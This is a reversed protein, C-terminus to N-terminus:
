GKTTRYRIRFAEADEEFLVATKSWPRRSDHDTEYSMWVNLPFVGGDALDKFSFQPFHMDDREDIYERIAPIQLIDRRETDDLDKWAETIGNEAMLRQMDEAVMQFYQQLELMSSGQLMDFLAASVGNQDTETASNLGAPAQLPSAFVLRAVNTPVMSKGDIRELDQPFTVDKDFEVDDEHGILALGTDVLLARFAEEPTKDDLFLVPRMGDLNKLEGQKVYITDFKAMYAQEEEEDKFMGLDRMSSMHDSMIKGLDINANQALLESLDGYSIATLEPSPRLADPKSQPRIGLLRAGFAQTRKLVAQKASADGEERLDLQKLTVGERLARQIVGQPNTKEPDNQRRELRRPAM